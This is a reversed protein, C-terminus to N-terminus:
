EASSNALDGGFLLNEIAVSFGPRYFQPNTAGELELKLGFRLLELANPGIIQKWDVALREILRLHEREFTSMQITVAAQQLSRSADLLFRTCADLWQDNVGAYRVEVGEDRLRIALSLYATMDLPDLDGVFTVGVGRRKAEFAVHSAYVDAIPGCFASLASGKPRLRTM